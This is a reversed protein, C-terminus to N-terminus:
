KWALYGGKMNTLDKFGMDAMQNVANLSRKGSRCYVLYKDKKNLKAVKEAFTADMVNIMRAGPLHGDAYEEPTRVDLVILDKHAAILKKAQEVNVDTYKQQVSESTTHSASSQTAKTGCSMAFVVCLAMIIMSRTM